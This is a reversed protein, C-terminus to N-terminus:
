LTKVWVIKNKNVIKAIYNQRTEKSYLRIEQGIGKSERAICDIQIRVGNEGFEMAVYDGPQITKPGELNSAFFVSGKRIIRTAHQNKFMEIKTVPMRSLHSLDKWRWVIDPTDIQEGRSFQKRAVPVKQEISIFLQVATKASPPEGNLLVKATVYGAPLGPNDFRLGTIAEAARAVAPAIWKCEVTVKCSACEALIKQTALIKLKKEAESDSTGIGYVPLGMFLFVGFFGLIITSRIM